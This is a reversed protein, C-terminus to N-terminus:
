INIQKNYLFHCTERERERVCMCVCQRVSQEKRRKHQESNTASSFCFFSSVGKEKSSPRQM